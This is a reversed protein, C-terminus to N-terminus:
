RLFTVTRSAAFEDGVVQLVYMGSALGAGDIVITHLRGAELTGGIVARVRRGLVDYLAGQIVQSRGVALTVSAQSQAPNPFPSSLVYGSAPVEPPEPNEHIDASVFPRPYPMWNSPDSGFALPDVRRLSSGEGAAEVPWPSADDYVVRDEVTQPIYDPEDAPPEEPRTLTVVEGEDALRGDWGGIIRLAADWGYVARFTAAKELEVSPDFAVIVISDDPTLLVDPFEFAVGDQLQWSTLEVAEATPNVLRIYELNENNGPPHYMIEEIAVEAARPGSNAAGPTFSQMPYLDGEGDPWRGFPEGNRAASFSVVDVFRIPEGDDSAEVFWVEDGHASDLAFDQDTGSANFDSEDFVIFSRGEVVTGDPIRYKSFQPGDSLFWGGIDVSTATTNYLEIADLHPEDTHTLVENIIVDRLPGNGERGPSGNYETSSRWSRADGYDATPDTLELSSGGGDARRPWDGEDDYAFAFVDSGNRDSLVLMEGGNDLRGGYEALIRPDSGFRHRFADTDGVVVAREGAALAVAGFTLDIGDSFSLGGLDLSRDATNHLEIFEFAENSTFGAAQEGPTAPAPNYYIESISLDSPPATDVFFEAQTLASWEEGSLIRAGVVTRGALTVPNGGYAVAGNSVAGGFERPDSGDLTYYITGGEPATMSLEYDAGVSGGYHNFGPADISPYLPAPVTGANSNGNVFRRAQTLQAIIVGTRPPIVSSRVRQIEARWDSLGRPTAVQADGWRASEALIASEVEDARADWREVARSTTLVGDHVLHKRARDAFRLRYEPSGMLQQHIWQPNSFIFQDGATFPGTRDYYGGNEPLLTHESDHAFYIFGREATRDRIAFFNNTGMFPTIPADPNGTWFIVLMYDILNDPDLLVPLDPNRSGDANLGQLELYIEDSQDPAAAALDNARDHLRRWADVEGATVEMEYNNDLGASKIVDFDDEDGGLYAAGHSGDAREQTQFLGWYQGNLYLHYYRSRTYIQGMDRQTDRSFVDRVFTNRPDGLFSWSYNQATRLDIKDFRDAGEEGFLPYELHTPGYEGRFFLRFAHKPNDDSRSWGGRIRVGANVQFGSVDGHSKDATFGDPYLLEISAPREWDRGYQLANAYIGRSAGFLSDLDMVISFSPIAALSAAVEATRGGVVVPDMGYDVHNEGWSAPWGPPPRGDASQDIVDELFIFSRTVVASRRLGPKFSAARIVTTRDVHIPATYELGDTETPESGDTTYRITSGSTEPILYLPFAEEYFGHAASFSPPDAYGDFGAANPAGPTPSTFYTFGSGDPASGYSVDAHQEPFPDFETAIQGDPDVLALYEGERALSFNTHINRSGVSGLEPAPGRFDSPRSSTELTLYPSLTLDTSTTSINHIEVALVNTGARLFGQPDAIDFREPPSGQYLTAEHLESAPTDFQPITPNVNRRAIEQGNLYAVFGDDYDVHLLLQLVDSVSEVTFEARLYVTLLGEEVTTTIRAGNPDKEYGIPTKGQQWSADDFSEATWAAPPQSTGPFYRIDDGARVVSDWYSDQLGRDKGSAFVVLYERPDIKVSPFVWKSPESRDDTLSWGGLYATDASANYIEIWDSFDGDEDQLVGANAAMFESILPAGIRAAGNPATGSLGLGAIALISLLLAIWWRSRRLYKM